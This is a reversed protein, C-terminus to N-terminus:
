CGPFDGKFAQRLKRLARSLTSAVTGQHIDLIAAIEEYSFGEARLQLIEFERPSAIRALRRRIEHRRKPADFDPTEPAPAAHSIEDEARSRIEAQARAGAIYRRVARYLWERPQTISVGERWLTLLDLFAQQVAEQAEGRDATCITAFRLLGPASADYLALFATELSDAEGAPSHGSSASSFPSSPMEPQFFSVVVDRLLLFGWFVANKTRNRKVLASFM